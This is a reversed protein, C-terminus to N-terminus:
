PISPTFPLEVIAITGGERPSRVDISGRDGYKQLLRARTNRLGVGEDGDLRWHPPLGCGNDRVELHLAEGRRSAAVILHAGSEQEGLGHHLANEVLPQLILHPVLAHELGPDATVSTTLTGAFRMQEIALYRNLSALEEALRGDAAEHDLISRLLEAYGLVAELAAERANARILMAISNLANYLFHPKLQSTLSHLRATAIQAELGTQLQLHERERRQLMLVIATGAVVAYQLLGPVSIIFRGRQLGMSALVAFMVLSILFMTAVAAFLHVVLSRVRQRDDFRFREALLFVGPSLLWWCVWPVARLRAARALSFPGVFDPWFVGAVLLSGIDLFWVLTWVIASTLMWRAARRVGTRGYVSATTM